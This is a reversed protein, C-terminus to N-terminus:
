EWGFSEEAMDGQEDELLAFQTTDANLLIERLTMSPAEGEDPYAEGGDGIDDYSTRDALLEDFSPSASTLSPLPMAPEEFVGPYSVKPRNVTSTSGDKRGSTWIRNAPKPKKPTVPMLDEEGTSDDQTGRIIRNVDSLLVDEEDSLNGTAFLSPRRHIALSFRISKRPAKSTRRTAHKSEEHTTVAKRSTGSLPKGNRPPTSTLLQPSPPETSRPLSAPRPPKALERCPLISVGATSAQPGAEPLPIWPASVDPIPPYAPLMTNRIEDIRAELGGAQESADLAFAALLEPTPETEFNVPAGHDPQWLDLKFGPNTTTKRAQRKEDLAKVRAVLDQGVKRVNALAATLAQHTGLESEFRDSLALAAASASPRTRAVEAVTAEARQLPRQTRPASFLPKRIKKLNSLHHAAATPLIQPAVAPHSPKPLMDSSPCSAGREAGSPGAVEIGSAKALFELALRGNQGSWWRALIERYKAEVLALLRATSLSSYKSTVEDGHSRLHERLSQLEAERQLLVAAQQTWTHRASKYKALLDAYRKPQSRLLANIDEAIVRLSRSTGKLVAQTSLSLLLREFREGACEELLSKRVVVDKWWWATSDPSKAAEKGKSKGSAGNVSKSNPYIANHRLTELYKSLSTRFAVTDSPAVCPYTSLITRASGELRGVLFFAIDELTKTRDRLGRVRPEFINHDYEAKHAHPYELIHLHVLLILHRPLSLVSASM